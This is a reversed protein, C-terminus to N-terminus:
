QYTYLTFPTVAPSCVWTEAPAAAAEAQFLRLPTLVMHFQVERSREGAADQFVAQSQSERCAKTEQLQLRALALNRGCDWARRPNSVRLGLMGTVRKSEAQPEMRWARAHCIRERMRPAGRARLTEVPPKRHPRWLLQM